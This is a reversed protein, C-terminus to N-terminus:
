PLRVAVAVSERSFLAGLHGYMPDSRFKKVDFVTRYSTEIKVVDRGDFCGLDAGDLMAIIELKLEAERDRLKTSQARIDRLQQVLEAQDETLERALSM